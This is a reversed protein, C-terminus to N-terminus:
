KWILLFFEDEFVVVTQESKNWVNKNIDTYFYLITIINSVFGKLTFKIGCVYTEPKM